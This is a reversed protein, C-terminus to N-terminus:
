LNSDWEYANKDVYKCISISIDNPLMEITQFQWTMIRKWTKWSSPSAAVTIGSASFFNIFSDQTSKSSKQLENV